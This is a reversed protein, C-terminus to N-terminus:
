IRITPEVIENLEEEVEVRVKIKQPVDKQPIVLVMQYRVVSEGTKPDTTQFTGYKGKVYNIKEDYGMAFRGTMTGNFNMLLSGAEVKKWYYGDVLGHEDDHDYNCDEFEFIYHGYMDLRSFLELKVGQYHRRKSEPVDENTLGAKQLIQNVDINEDIVTISVFCNKGPIFNDDLEMRRVYQAKGAPIDFTETAM